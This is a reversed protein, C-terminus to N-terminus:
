MRRLTPMAELFLPHVTNKVTNWCKSTMQFHIRRAGLPHLSNNNLELLVGQEKASRVVAEYDLPFRSDDPHGLINVYSNEMAKIVARTNGAKGADKQMCPTHLSAIVVDMQKLLYDDMDLRGETDLINVEAGHRIEIGYM